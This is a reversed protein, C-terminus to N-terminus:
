RESSGICPVHTRGRTLSSLDWMSTQAALIFFSLLTWETSNICDNKRVNFMKIPHRGYEQCMNLTPATLSHPRLSSFTQQHPAFPPHLDMLILLLEKELERSM